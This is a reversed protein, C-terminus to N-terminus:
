LNSNNYIKIKILYILNLLILKELHCNKPIKLNILIKPFVLIEHLRKNSRIKFNSNLNFAINKLIKNIKSKKMLYSNKKYIILKMRITMIKIKISNQNFTLNHLYDEILTYMISMENKAIM